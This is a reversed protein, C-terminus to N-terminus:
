VLISFFRIIQKILITLTLLHLFPCILYAHFWQHIESTSGPVWIVCSRLKHMRVPQSPPFRCPLSTEWKPYFSEREQCQALSLEACQFSFVLASKLDDNLGTGGVCACAPSGTGVCAWHQVGRKGFERQGRRWSWVWETMRNWSLPPWRVRMNHIFKEEPNCWLSGQVGRVEV